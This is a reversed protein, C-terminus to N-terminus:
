AWQQDVSPISHQACYEQVESDTIMGALKLRNGFRFLRRRKEKEPNPPTNGTKDPTPIPPAIKDIFENVAKVAEKMHESGFVARIKHLLSLATPLAVLVTKLLRVATIITAIKM